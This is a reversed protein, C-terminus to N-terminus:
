DKLLKYQLIEQPTLFLTGAVGDMPLLYKLPVLSVPKFDNEYEVCTKYHGIKCIVLLVQGEHLLETPFEKLVGRM